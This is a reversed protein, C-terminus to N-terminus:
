LARHGTQTGFLATTNKLADHTFNLDEQYASTFHFPHLEAADGEQKGNNGYPGCEVPRPSLTFRCAPVQRM